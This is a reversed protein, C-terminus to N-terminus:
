LILFLTITLQQFVITPLKDVESTNFILLFPFFFNTLITKKAANAM